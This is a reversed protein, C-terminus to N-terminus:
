QRQLEAKRAKEKAKEDEEQKKKEEASLGNNSSAAAADKKGLHEEVKITNAPKEKELYFKSLSKEYEERMRREEEIAKPDKVAYPNDMLM